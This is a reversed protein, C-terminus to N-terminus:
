LLVNLSDPATFFSNALRETLMRDIQFYSPPRQSRPKFEETTLANPHCTGHANLSHAGTDYASDGALMVNRSKLGLPILWASAQDIDGYKFKTKFM